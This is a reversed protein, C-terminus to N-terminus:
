LVFFFFLLILYGWGLSVLSMAADRPMYQIMLANIVFGYCLVAGITLNYARDSIIEDLTDRRDWVNESSIM